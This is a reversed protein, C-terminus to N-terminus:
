RVVTIAYSKEREKKTQNELVYAGSSNGQMGSKLKIRITPDPWFDVVLCPLDFLQESAEIKKQRWDRIKM